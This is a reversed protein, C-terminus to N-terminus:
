RMREELMERDMQGGGGRDTERDGERERDTLLNLM